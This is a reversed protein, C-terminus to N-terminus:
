VIEVFLIPDLVSIGFDEEDFSGRALTIAPCRVYSKGASPAIRCILVVFSSGYTLRPFFYAQVQVFIGYIAAIEWLPQDGGVPALRWQHHQARINEQDGLV